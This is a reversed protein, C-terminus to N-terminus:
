FCCIIHSPKSRILVQGFAQLVQPYLSEFCVILLERACLLHFDKAKINHQISSAVKQMPFLKILAFTTEVSGM